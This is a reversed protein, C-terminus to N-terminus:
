LAAKLADTRWSSEGALVEEAARISARWEAYAIGCVTPGSGVTVLGADELARCSKALTEAARHLMDLRPNILTFVWDGNPLCGASLKFGEADWGLKAMLADAAARHADEGSNKEHPYGITVSGAACSAKIRSGRVNSPGYYKCVIAQM